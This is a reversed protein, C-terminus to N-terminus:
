HVFLFDLFILWSFCFKLVFYLMIFATKFLANNIASINVVKAPSILPEYAAGFFSMVAHFSSFIHNTNKMKPHKIRGTVVIRKSDGPMSLTTGFIGADQIMVKTAPPNNKPIPCSNKERAKLNIPMPILKTRFM